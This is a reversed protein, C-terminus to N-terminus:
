PVACRVDRPNRLAIQHALARAEELGLLRAEKTFVGLPEGFYTCVVLASPFQRLEERFSTFSRRSPLDTSLGKVSQLVVVMDHDRSLARFADSGPRAVEPNVRGSPAPDLVLPMRSAISPNNSVLGRYTWGETLLAADHV